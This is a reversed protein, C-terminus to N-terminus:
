KKEDPVVRELVNDLKGIAKKINQPNTLDAGRAIKILEQYLAQEQVDLNSDIFVDFQSTQDKTTSQKKVM